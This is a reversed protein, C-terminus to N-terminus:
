KLFAPVSIILMFTVTQSSYPIGLQIQTDTGLFTDQTIQHSVSDKFQYIRLIHYMMILHVHCPANSYQQSTLFSVSPTVTGLSHHRYDTGHHGHLHHTQNHGGHQGAYDRLGCATQRDTRRTPTPHLVASEGAALCVSRIDYRTNTLCVNVCNIDDVYEM